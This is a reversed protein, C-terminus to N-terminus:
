PKWRDHNHKKLYAMADKVAALLVSRTQNDLNELKFEETQGDSFIIKLKTITSEAAESM